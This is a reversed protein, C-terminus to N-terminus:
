SPYCTKRTKRFMIVIFFHARTHTVYISLDQNKGQLEDDDGYILDGEENEEIAEEEAALSCALNSCNCILCMTFYINFGRKGAQLLVDLGSGSHSKNQSNKKSAHSATRGTSRGDEEDNYHVNGRSGGCSITGRSSRLKRGEVEVEDEDEYDRYGGRSITGRISRLKRGKHVEVDDEDQYGGCSITGRSSRMDRDDLYISFSLVFDSVNDNYPFM